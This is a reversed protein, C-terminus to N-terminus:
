SAARKNGNRTPSKRILDFAVAFFFFFDRNATTQFCSIIAPQRRSGNKLSRGAAISSIKEDREELIIDTHTHVTYLYIFHHHIILRIFSASPTSNEGGNLVNKSADEAATGNGCRPPLCNALNFCCCCCGLGSVKHM